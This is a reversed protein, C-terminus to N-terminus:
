FRDVSQKFRGGSNFRSIQPFNKTKWANIHKNGSKESLRNIKRNEEIASVELSYKGLHFSRLQIIELTSIYKEQNNM